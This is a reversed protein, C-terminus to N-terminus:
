NGVKLGKATKKKNSTKTNKKERFTITTGKGSELNWEVGAYSLKKMDSYKLRYYINRDNGGGSYATFELSEGEEVGFKFVVTEMDESISEFLCPTGKKIVFTEFGVGNEFSVKGKSIERDQTKPLRRKLEIQESSYFQIGTLDIGLQNYKEYDAQSFKKEKSGIKQATAPLLGILCIVLIVIKTVRMGKVM